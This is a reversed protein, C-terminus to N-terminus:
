GSDTGGPMGPYGKLRRRKLKPPRITGELEEIIGLIFMDSILRAHGHKAARQRIRKLTDEAASAVQEYLEDEGYWWAVRAITERPSYIEPDDEAPTPM